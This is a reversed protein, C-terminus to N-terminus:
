FSSSRNLEGTIKLFGSGGSMKKPREASNCVMLQKRWKSVNDERVTIGCEKPMREVKNVTRAMNRKSVEKARGLNGINCKGWIRDQVWKEKNELSEEYNSM